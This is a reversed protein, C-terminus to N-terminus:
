FSPMMYHNKFVMTFINISKVIKQKNTPDKLDDAWVKVRNHENIFDDTTSTRPDKRSWAISKM